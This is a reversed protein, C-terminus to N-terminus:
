NVAHSFYRGDFTIIHPDTFSYCYAAPVDKVTIQFLLDFKLLDYKVVLPFKYPFRGFM